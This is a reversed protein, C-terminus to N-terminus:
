AVLPQATYDVEAMYITGTSSGTTEKVQIGYSTSAAIKTSLSGITLTQNSGNGASEAASAITSASGTASCSFFSATLKCLGGSTDQALVRIALVTAGVPLSVSAFVAANTAAIAAGGQNYTVTTTSVPNFASSHIPLTLTPVTWVSQTNGTLLAHLAVLANWAANDNASKIQTQAAALATPLCYPLSHEITTVGSGLGGTVDIIGTGALAHANTDCLKLSNGDVRLAFYDTSGSLTPSATPLAGGVNRIRCRDGTVLGHSTATFTDTTTNVASITIAPM